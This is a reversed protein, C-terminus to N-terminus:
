RLLICKPHVDELVNSSLPALFVMIKTRMYEVNNDAELVSLNKYNSGLLLRLLLYIVQHQM